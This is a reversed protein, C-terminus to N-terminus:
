VSPVRLSRAFRQFSEYPLPSERKIKVVLAPYGSLPEDEPADSGPMDAVSIRTGRFVPEGGMTEPDAHILAEARRLDKLNAAVQRRATELDVFGLM